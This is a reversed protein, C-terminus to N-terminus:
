RMAALAWPLTVVAILLSLVQCGLVVGIATPAPVLALLLAPATVSVLQVLPRLTAVARRQSRLLWPPVLPDISGTCAPAVALFQCAVLLADVGALLAVLGVGHVTDALALLTIGCASAGIGALIWAYAYRDGRRRTGLLAIAAWAAALVAAIGVPLTTMGTGAADAAGVAQALLSPGLCLSALGLPLAQVAELLLGAVVTRRVRKIALDSRGIPHQEGRTGTDMMVWDIGVAAELGGLMRQLAAYAADVRGQAAYWQPTEPLTLMLLLSGIAALQPTTWACAVGQAPSLLAGLAGALVALGAGAPAAARMRPMLRRHGHEALEHALKPAVIAYGGVGLGVVGIGTVCLFSRDAAALLCGLVTLVACTLMAPRRGGARSVFDLAPAGVLSGLPLAALTLLLPALSDAGASGHATLAARAGSSGALTAGVAGWAAGSALESGLLLARLRRQPPTRKATTM